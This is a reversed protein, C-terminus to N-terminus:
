TSLLYPVVFLMVFLDVFLRCLYLILCGVLFSNVIFSFVQGLFLTVQKISKKYLLCLIQLHNELCGSFSVM